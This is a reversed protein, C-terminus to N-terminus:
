NGSSYTKRALITEIMIRKLEDVARWETAQMPTGLSITYKAQQSLPVLVLDSTNLLIDSILHSPCFMGGLGQVCMSLLTTIYGSTAIVRPKIGANRLESYAVRGSIDEVTGMLFPCNKLVGLGEKAIKELAAECDLGVVKELLNKNIALVIEEEMLPIEDIGPHSNGFRAVVVDVEGRECKRILERNTEEVLQFEIDPFIELMKEIVEPMISRSRIQPVGVKLIGASGGTAEGVARLMDVQAQQQEQAYLLFALGASTFSLPTGRVILKAGLDKELAALRASLTQQSIHLKEAAKTFSGTESLQTYWEWNDLAM